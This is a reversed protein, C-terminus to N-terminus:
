WWRSCHVSELPAKAIFNVNM